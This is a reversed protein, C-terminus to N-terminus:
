REDVWRTQSNVNGHTDTHARTCGPANHSPESIFMRELSAPRPPMQILPSKQEQFIQWAKLLEVPLKKKERRRCSATAANGDEPNFIHEGECGWCVCVCDCM